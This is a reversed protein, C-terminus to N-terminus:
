SASEGTDSSSQQCLLTESLHHSMNSKKRANHGTHLPQVTLSISAWGLDRRIAMQVRVHQLELQIIRYSTGDTSHTDRGEEM